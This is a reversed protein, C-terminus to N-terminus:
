NMVAAPRGCELCRDPTARLDYGCSPCRGMAELQRRRKARASRVGVVIGAMGLSPLLFFLSYPIAWYLLLELVVSPILVVRDGYGVLVSLLAAASVIVCWVYARLPRRFGFWGIMLGLASMAMAIPLFAIVM